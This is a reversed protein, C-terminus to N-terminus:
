YEKWSSDLNGVKIANGDEDFQEELEVSQPAYQTQTTPIEEDDSHRLM